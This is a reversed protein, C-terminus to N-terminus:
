DALPPTYRTNDFTPNISSGTPTYSINDFTLILHGGGSPARVDNSPQQNAIIIEVVTSM